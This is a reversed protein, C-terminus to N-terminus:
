DADRKATNAEAQKLRTVVAGKGAERTLAGNIAAGAAIEIVKYSVDGTIEGKNQLEIRETARVNGDIRGNVIIHPVTVNGTVEAHESLVLMSNGDGLALINGRIKGDIRLGGTFQVDGKIETKSGILTDITNCPKENTKKALTDLM